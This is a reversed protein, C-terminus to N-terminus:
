RTTWRPTTRGGTTRGTSRGAPPPRTSATAYSRHRALRPGAEAPSGVSDGADILAGRTSSGTDGDFPALLGTTLWARLRPVRGCARTARAASAPVAGRLQRSRRRHHLDLHRLGPLEVPPPRTWTRWRRPPRPRDYTGASGPGAAPPSPPSSPPGTAGGRPSAAPPSCGRSLSRLRGRRDVRGVEGAPVMSQVHAWAWSDALDPLEIPCRAAGGGAARAGTPREARVRGREAGRRVGARALPAAGEARPRAGGADAAVAPRARRAGGRAAAVTSEAAGAGARPARDPRPRARSTARPRSRWRAPRRGGGGLSDTSTM